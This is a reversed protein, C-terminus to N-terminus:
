DIGHRLLALGQRSSGIYKRKEANCPPCVGRGRASWTAWTPPILSGLMEQKGSGQLPTVTDMGQAGHVDYLSVHVMRDPLKGFFTRM